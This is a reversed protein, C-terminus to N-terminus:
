GEVESRNVQQIEEADAEVEAANSRSKKGAPGRKIKTPNLQQDGELKQKVVKREEKRQLFSRNTLIISPM